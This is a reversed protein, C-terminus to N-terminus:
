KRQLQVTNARGRSLLPSSKESDKLKVVFSENLKIMHDRFDLIEREFGLVDSNDIDDSSQELRSEDSADETSPITRSNSEERFCKWKDLLSDILDKLSSNM